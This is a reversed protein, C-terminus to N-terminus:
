VLGVSGLSRLVVRQSNDHPHPASSFVHSIWVVSFGHFAQQILLYNANPYYIYHQYAKVAWVCVM